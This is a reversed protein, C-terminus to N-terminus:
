RVFVWENESSFEEKFGYSLGDFAKLKEPDLIRHRILYDAMAGRAQKAFLSISQPKGNRMEKFVMTITRAKLHKLQVSRFYENSALNILTPTGLKEMDSQLTAAISKGWFAYLDKGKRTALSTGMELRHPQILDLPKLVGYLGSLIRLHKQAFDFDEESFTAVDIKQYVDGNFSLIAQKANQPTFPFSFEQYRGHNLAALNASLHMLEGIAKPSKKQLVKLLKETGDLHRPISHLDTYRTEPSFDLKKAPSIVAIM